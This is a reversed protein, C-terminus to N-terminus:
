PAAVKARVVMFAVDDQYVGGTFEDLEHLLARQLDVLPRRAHAVLLAILKQEGFVGRRPDGRQAAETIGDTGVFLLEGSALEFSEEGVDEPALDAMFGLGLPFQVVSRREVRGDARVIFIDDHAGSLAFHNGPTRRLSVITMHRAEELRKLNQYLVRNALFNLERPSIGPRTYLISSITSQAMLMVLGAGLGHGTVDGLLLWADDGFAYVDLYDGGVEDAPKLYTMVELGPVNTDRPAILAQIRRAADMETAIRAERETVLELVVAPGTISLAFIILTALTFGLTAFKPDDRLFAFDLNHLSFLFSSVVLARGSIRTVRWRSTVIRGATVLSPLCVAVAIPLAVATFSFGSFWLAISALSALSVLATFRRWALPVGTALAVLHALALNVPFVSSFALAIVLENQQLAGQVVFSLATSLWVFFLARYLPHRHRYWFAAALAVNILLLGAYLVLLNKVVDTV